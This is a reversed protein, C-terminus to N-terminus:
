SIKKRSQGKQTAMIYKVRISGAHSKAKYVIYVRYVSYIHVEMWVLKKAMIYKVRISGAQSKAKYVIYVRYVSYIHVEM